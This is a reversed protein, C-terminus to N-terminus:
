EDAEDIVRRPRGILVAQPMLMKEGDGSQLRM